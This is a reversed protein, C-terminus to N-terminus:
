TSCTVRNYAEKSTLLESNSIDSADRCEGCLEERRNIIHKVDNSILVRNKKFAVYVLIRDTEEKEEPIIKIIANLLLDNCITVTERRAFDMWYRISHQEANIDNRKLFNGRLLHHSYENSIKGENDM